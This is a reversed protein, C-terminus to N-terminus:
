VGSPMVEANTESQLESLPLKSFWFCLTLLAKLIYHGVRRTAEMLVGRPPLRQLSVILHP